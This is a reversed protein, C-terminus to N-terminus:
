PAAARMEELWANYAAQFALMERGYGPPMLLAEDPHYLQEGFRPQLPLLTDSCGDWGANVPLGLRTLAPDMTADVLALREGIEVRCALHHSTPLRAALRALGDPFAIGLEDWRFAYVAYLVNLGLRHFMHCLLFHKPACSGRGLELVRVWDRPHVLQPVLAYRIDRVKEFISIRADRPSKGATWATFAADLTATVIASPEAPM